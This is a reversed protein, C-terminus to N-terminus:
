KRVENFVWGNAKLKEEWDRLLAYDFTHHYCDSMSGICFTHKGVIGQELLKKVKEQTNRWLHERNNSSIESDMSIFYGEIRDYYSIESIYIYNKNEEIKKALWEDTAPNEDPNIYVGRIGLGLSKTKKNSINKEIIGLSFLKDNDEIFQMLDTKSTKLEKALEAVLCYNENNVKKLLEFRRKIEKIEM